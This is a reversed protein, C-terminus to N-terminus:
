TPLRSAEPRYEAANAAENGSRILMVSILDLM